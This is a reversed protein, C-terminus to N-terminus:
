PRTGPSHLSSRRSPACPFSGPLKSWSTASTVFPPSGTLPRMCPATFRQSGHLGANLSNPRCALRVARHPAVVFPATVRAPLPTLCLKPAMSLFPCNGPSCWPQRHGLLHAPRLGCPGPERTWSLRFPFAPFALLPCLSSSASSSSGPVSRAPIVPLARSAFTAVLTPPAVLLACPLIRRRAPVRSPSIPAGSLM